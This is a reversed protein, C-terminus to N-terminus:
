YYYYYSGLPEGEGLLMVLEPFNKLSIQSLLQIKIIQWLLGLILIPSPNISFLFVRCILVLPLLFSINPANYHTTPRHANRPM